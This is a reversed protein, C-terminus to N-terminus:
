RTRRGFELTFPLWRQGPSMTAPTGVLRPGVIAQAADLSEVVDGTRSAAGTMSGAGALDLELTTLYSSDPLAEVVAAMGQLVESRERESAAVAALTESGARLAERANRLAAAPEALAELRARVRREERAFRAIAVGALLLWAVGAAIGWRYFSRRARRRRAAREGAPMLDLRAEVGTGAPRIADLRLGLARCAELAADPWPEEVAAARAIPPSGKRGPLWRADTLLPKGNQRFFRSRQLSVLDALARRRVPPLGALTRVQVVPPLLEVRVVPKGSLPASEGALHAIVTALDGPGAHAASGKWVSKGRHLVEAEVTAAGIALRV